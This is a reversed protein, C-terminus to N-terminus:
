KKYVKKMRDLILGDSKQNEGIVFDPMYQTIYKGYGINKDKELLEEVYFVGNPITDLLLTCIGAYVGCAVQIYTANSGYKEFTFQSNMVNYMFRERDKYVLLVGVLDEGELEAEAPDLVKLNWNLLDDVCELNARITQTTYDNVKYIFGTEMNYLTGLSLVEEHPMLCGYFQIDGLTVKFEQAYVEKYLHLPVGGKVFMPYNLIAEDLFCEPSWTTCITKALLSKEKYFTTDKEVIYCALPKENPHMAMISYAMWQVVGPNMGSCVIGKMNTFRNKADEFRYFRELLTFGKLNQDEDVETNELATNVYFVGFENCIDLIDITDAWSLDVILLTETECIHKRVEELDTLDIQNLVIQNILNPCIENYYAIDKQEIDILHLTIQKILKHLPNTSDKISKNLLSLLARAVGGASGFISIAAGISRM